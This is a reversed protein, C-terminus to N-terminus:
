ATKVIGPFLHFSTGSYAFSSRQMGPGKCVPLLLIGKYFAEIALESFIGQGSNNPLNVQLM